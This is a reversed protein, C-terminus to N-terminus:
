VGADSRVERTATSRRRRPLMAAGAAGAAEAAANQLAFMVQFLPTARCIGSRSCSRWWSRSRCTRTRTRGLATERVRQLLERFSPDGSLDTRMVLTNVFFGILGEPERHTRGAIPPRGGHGAPRELPLLVQFAALLVMYLTVGERRALARLAGHLEGASCRSRM